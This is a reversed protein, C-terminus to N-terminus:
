SSFKAAEQMVKQYENRALTLKEQLSLMADRRSDATSGPGVEALLAKVPPTNMAPTYPNAPNLLHEVHNLAMSITQVKELARLLKNQVEQEAPSLTVDDSDSDM